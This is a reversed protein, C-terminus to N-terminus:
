RPLQDYAQKANNLNTQITSIRAANNQASSLPALFALLGLSFVLSRFGYV